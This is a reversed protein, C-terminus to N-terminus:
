PQDTEDTKVTGCDTRKGIGRFLRGLIDSGSIIRPSKSWLLIVDNEIVETGTKGVCVKFRALHEGLKQNAERIVIPKHCYAMPGAVSDFSMLTEAIFDSTNMVLRPERDYDVLVAWKRDAQYIKRLFPDAPTPSVSPFLPTENEFDMEIISSSAVAEGEDNLSIDDIDLFNLAGQGELRAIDSDSSEM